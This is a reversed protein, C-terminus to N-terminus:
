VKQKDLISNQVYLVAEEQNPAEVVAYKREGNEFYCIRYKKLEQAKIIKFAIDKACCENKHKDHFKCSKCFIPIM